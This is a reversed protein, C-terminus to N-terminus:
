VTLQEGDLAAEEVHRRLREALQAAEDRTTGPLILAFEEGGYRTVTHPKRTSHRLQEAVMQLADDGRAHGHRDNFRKFHDIDIMLLSLPLGLKRSRDFHYILLEDFVRRNGLGTLPDTLTQRQLESVRSALALALLVMELLSGIQFANQTFPNHPLLGFTKLMYIMVGVLLASWALMFYRAPRYGALFSTTGMVMILATVAITLAALPVITEAYTAFLGYAFCVLVAAQLGWVAKNQLPAHRRVNLFSRSFELGFILTAALLVILAFNGWDSSDPWLFQFTLGNHVAMYLGYCCVYLLYYLFARDRVVLFIFFNYVVLVLFGGFYIGYALQEVSIAQILRDMTYLTLGINVPGGSRFRLYCTVTRDPPVSLPFVFDRHAVPRTEFPRRDGTAVHDWPEGQVACWSDLEDILPYDQRVAVELQELGGHRISFRVWWASDTFGFNASTRGVPRFEDAKAGSVQALTYKGGPDELLMLRPTLDLRGFDDTLLVPQVADAKAGFASAIALLLAALLLYRSM